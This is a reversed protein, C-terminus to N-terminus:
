DSYSRNVRATVASLLAYSITEACQAIEEVPLDKGWLTAEDGVEINECHSIDATIMDMSVRGVLKARQGRILVPTGNSAHRPYGDGYGIGITAIRTRRNARWKANYGVAEGADIERIAIVKATLTMAAQLPLHCEMQLPNAGYLMLGPRVWDYHTEPHQIIAASNAMSRISHSSGITDLFLNQQQQCCEPDSSDSSSFHTMLVVESINKSTRCREMAQQFQSPYIGLRHMGTDIKLWANVPTSLKIRTLQEVMALTHLTVDIRRNACFEFEQDSLNSGLLLIRQSIGAERLIRAEDIRAVALGDADALARAVAVLGHGYADAKIIAMIKSGPACTRALALNHRIAPLAISARPFRTMNAKAQISIAKNYLYVPRPPSNIADLATTTIVM